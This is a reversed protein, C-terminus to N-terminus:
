FGERIVFALADPGYGMEIERVLTDDLIPDLLYLMDHNFELAWLLNDPGLALGSVFNLGQGASPLSVPSKLSLSGLDIRQILGDMASALYASDPGFTMEFPADNVPIIDTFAEQQINWIAASGNGDFGSGQTYDGANLVWLWDQWRNNHMVCVTNRGNSEFWGNLTNTSTDITCILGPGGATFLDDLNACAVYCTNGVIVLEGPRAWTIKGADHPLEQSSPLNIETITQGSVPNIVSVSNAQFNSVYARTDDLFTMFMPNRPPGVSFERKLQFTISDYVSISHSLSNVIFLESGRVIIQNPASGTDAVNDEVQYSGGEITWLVEDTMAVVADFQISPSSTPTPTPDPTNGPLVAALFRVTGSGAGLEMETLSVPNSGFLPNLDLAVPDSGHLSEYYWVQEGNRNLVGDDWISTYSFGTVFGEPLGPGTYPHFAFDSFDLVYYEAYEADFYLLEDAIRGPRTLASIIGYGSGLGFLRRFDNNELVALLQFRHTEVVAVQDTGCIILLEDGEGNGTNLATINQISDFGTVQILFETIDMQWAHDIDYLTVHTEGASVPLIYFSIMSLIFLNKKCLNVYKM